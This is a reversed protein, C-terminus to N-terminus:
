AYNATLIALSNLWFATIDPWLRLRYNGGAIDTSDEYLDFLVSGLPSYGYYNYSNSDSDKPNPSIAM